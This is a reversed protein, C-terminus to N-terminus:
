IWLPVLLLALAPINSWLVQPVGQILCYTTDLVGWLLVSLVLYKWVQMDPKAFYVNLLCLFLVGWSAVTPGFVGMWFVAGTEAQTNLLTQNIINAVDSHFCAVPLIVGGLIHIYALLYLVKKSM